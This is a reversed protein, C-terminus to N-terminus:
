SENAVRQVDALADAVTTSGDLVLSMQGYLETLVATPWFASASPHTTTSRADEIMQKSAPYTVKKTSTASNAPLWGVENLLRGGAEPGALYALYDAAIRVSHSFRGVGYILGAAYPLYSPKAANIAPAEIVGMNDRGIADSLYGANTALSVIMGAKGAEFDAEYDSLSLSQMGPTFLGLRYMQKYRTLLEVFRKDTFKIKGSTVETADAWTALGPWLLTVMWGNIAGELNGAAIPIIGAKKLALGAKVLQDYTIPRNKPDLGAKEFLRKNYYFVSAQTTVPVGYIGRGVKAGDISASLQNKLTDPLLGGIESFASQYQKMYSFPHNMLCDPGSHSLISAQMLEDYQQTAGPQAIRDISVGANQREFGSDISGMAQKWSPDSAELWDWVTLTGKAQKPLVGLNPVRGLGSHGLAARGSIPAVVGLAAGYGFLRLFRRRSVTEDSM